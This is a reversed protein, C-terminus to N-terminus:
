VGIIKWLQEIGEEMVDLVPVSVKESIAQKLEYKDVYAPEYDHSVYRYRPYFPNITITLLPVRKKVVVSVDREKLDNLIQWMRDPPGVVLIKIPDTLVLTRGALVSGGMELLSAFSNEGIIGAVEMTKIEPTLRNLFDQVMETNLLSSVSLGPAQQEQWLPLNIIEALAQTEAALKALDTTRSAGTAMILGDTEVMPAIRNLAGDVM